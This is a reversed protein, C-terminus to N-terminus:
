QDRVRAIAATLNEMQAVLVANSECLAAIGQALKDFKTDGKDLRNILAETREQFRAMKPEIAHIGTEVAALRAVHEHCLRRDWHDGSGHVPFSAPDDATKRNQYIEVGAKGTLISIGAAVIVVAGQIWAPLGEGTEQAMCNRVAAEILQAMEPDM